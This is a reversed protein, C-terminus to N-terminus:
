SASGAVAERRSAAEPEGGDGPKVLPIEFIVRLGPGRAAAEARIRGQHLGIISRSIALGLGSGKDPTEGNPAALRIFREFIRERQDPPVGPGEDEVAVQWRGDGTASELRIAGGAHSVSLANSLLNLLVQRIWRPDFDVVGDGAHSETFHVGRSEALVRADQAFNQLFRDPNERQTVLTIARAEARSLFLLEEIIQNLRAIEELQVQVSEEQTPSLGGEVLLKEAQLRVLSLPTKLEHSAEATFRRVQNFSSELRDFMQNLLRALNGIEDQVAPVPIRETLNDSSIHNATEQILRVPRLALRSLLLGTTASIFLTAAGLGLFIRLYGEMVKKVQEKSTAIRIDIPGLVFEAVRLEYPDGPFRANYVQQGPTDPIGRGRLNPSSFLTGRGKQHIEFYFLVSEFVGTGRLRDQIDAPTLTTYDPGLHSQIQAFEDQILLDLGNVLQHELFYRGAVFLGIMTAMSALTYGAALRAGISRM